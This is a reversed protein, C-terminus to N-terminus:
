PPDAADVLQSCDSDVCLRATTFLGTIVTEATGNGKLWCNAGNNEQYQQSLQTGVSIAICKTSRSVINMSECADLCSQLSYAQIGTIDGARLDRSNICRFYATNAFSAVISSSGSSPCAIAVATVEAASPPTYTALASVTSTPPTTTREPSVSTSPSGVTTTSTPHTFQSAKSINLTAVAEAKSRTFNYAM